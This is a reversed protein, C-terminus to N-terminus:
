FPMFFVAAVISLSADSSGSDFFCVFRAVVALAPAALFDLKAPADLTRDASRIAWLSTSRFYRVFRFSLIASNRAATGANCVEAHSPSESPPEAPPWPPVFILLTLKNQDKQRADDIM